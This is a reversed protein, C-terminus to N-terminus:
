ITFNLRNFFDEQRQNFAKANAQCIPCAGDADWFIRKYPKNTPIERLRKDCNCGDHPATPNEPSPADPNISQPIPEPTDVPAVGISTTLDPPLVENINPTPTEVDGPSQEDPSNIDANEDTEIEEAFPATQKKLLKHTVPKYALRKYWM